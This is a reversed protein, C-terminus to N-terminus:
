RNRDDELDSLREPKAVIVSIPGSLAEASTVVSFGHDALGALTEINSSTVSFVPLSILVRTKEVNAVCALSVRTAISDATAKCAEGSISM